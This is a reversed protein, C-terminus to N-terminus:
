KKKRKEKLWVFFGKLAIEDIVKYLLLICMFIIAFKLGSWQGIFTGVYFSCEPNNLGTTIINTINNM